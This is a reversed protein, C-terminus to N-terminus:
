LESIPNLESIKMVYGDVRNEWGFEDPEGAAMFKAKDLYEDKQMWGLIWGRKPARKVIVQCFIYIDVNQHLSTSAVHTTYFGKPEVTREKTKVDITYQFDTNPFRVMDHNYTNHELCDNVNALVIEEGLYGALNGKGRRISNRIDGHQGSKVRAKDEMDKTITFENM